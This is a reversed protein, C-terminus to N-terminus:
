AFKGYCDKGELIHKPDTVLTNRKWVLYTCMNTAIPLTTPHLYKKKIKSKACKRDKLNFCKPIEKQTSPNEVHSMGNSTTISFDMMVFIQGDKAKPLTCLFPPNNFPCHTFLM